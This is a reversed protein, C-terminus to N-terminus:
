LVTRTCFNFASSSATVLRKVTFDQLLNICMGLIYRLIKIFYTDRFLFTPAYFGGNKWRSVTTLNSIFNSVLTLNGYWCWNKSWIKCYKRPLIRYFTSILPTVVPNKYRIRHWFDVVNDHWFLSVIHGCFLSKQISWGISLFKNVFSWCVFVGYILRTVFCQRERLNIM